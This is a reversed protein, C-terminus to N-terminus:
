WDNRSSRAGPYNPSHGAAWAGAVLGFAVACSLIATIAGLDYIACIAGVAAAASLPLRWWDRHRSRFTGIAIILAVVAFFVSAPGLTILYLVAIVACVLYFIM